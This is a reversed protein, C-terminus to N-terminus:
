PRESPPVVSYGESFRELRSPLTEILDAYHLSSERISFSGNCSSVGCLVPFCDDRTFSGTQLM